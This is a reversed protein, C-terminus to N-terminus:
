GEQDYKKGANKGKWSSLDLGTSKQLEKNWPAYFKELRERIEEGLREKPRTKQNAEKVWQASKALIHAPFLTRLAKKMRNERHVYRRILQAISRSRPVSAQNEVKDTEPQFDTNLGLRGFLYQSVGVPDKELDELLFFDLRNRPFVELLKNVYYAYCGFGLYVNFRWRWKHELQEPPSSLTADLVEAFSYKEQDMKRQHLYSSFAREVPDRLLLLVRAEPYDKKLRELANPKRFLVAHKALFKMGERREGGPFYKRRLFAKGQQYQQDDFFFSCEVQPHTVISPHQALYAKLSTTGCKQFGAIMLDIHPEPSRKM